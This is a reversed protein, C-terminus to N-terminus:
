VLVVGCHLLLFSCCWVVCSLLLCCSVYCGSFCCCARCLIMAVCIIFCFLLDFLCMFSVGFAFMLLVWYCCCVVCFMVVRFAFCLMGVYLDSFRDFLLLVCLVRVFTLLM